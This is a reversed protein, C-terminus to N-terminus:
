TKDVWM